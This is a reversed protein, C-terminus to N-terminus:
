MAFYCDICRGYSACIRDAQFIPCSLHVAGKAAITWQDYDDSQYGRISPYSLHIAAKGAIRKQIYDHVRLTGGGLGSSDFVVFDGSRLADFLALLLRQKWSLGLHKWNPNIKVEELFELAERESVELEATLYKVVTRNRFWLREVWRPRGWSVAAHVAKERVKINSCDRVGRFVDVIAEPCHDGYAIGHPLHLCVYEGMCLSFEPIILRGIRAGDCEIISNSSGNM